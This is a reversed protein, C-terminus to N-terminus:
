FDPTEIPPLSEDNIRSMSSSEVRSLGLNFTTGPPIDEGDSLAALDIRPTQVALILESGSIQDNESLTFTATFSIDSSTLLTLLVEPDIGEVDLPLGLGEEFVTLFDLSLTILDVPQGAPGTGSLVTVDSVIKSLRERDRFLLEELSSGDDTQEQDFYPELDLEPFIAPDDVVVWGVPLPPLDPNPVSYSAQVYLVEEVYRIDANLTYTLPVPNEFDQSTVTVTALAAVDDGVTTATITQTASRSLSLSMTDPINVEVAQTNFITKTEIYSTYNDANEIANFLRELLIIQEDSLGNDQAGAPTPILLVILFLVCLIRLM